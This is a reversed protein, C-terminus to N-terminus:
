FKVEKENRIKRKIFEGRGPTGKLSNGDYIIKGKSITKEVAGRLTMGEFPSYKADTTLTEKNIEWEKDPDLITLDADSGPLICGKEPYLGFIKAPNACLLSVLREITIRGKEVGESYIVPLLTEVGPLGPPVKDFGKGLKQKPSYGCHDSGIVDVTGDIIAKWLFKRDQDSRLPPACQYLEPKDSMYKEETLLLYHPCTEAYVNKLNNESISKMAEKTSVHVIYLPSNSYEAFKLMRNVAEVEAISPRTKPYHNLSTKNEKVFDKKIGEVINNNEAHVATLGGGNKKNEELLSLVTLDDSMLGEKKYTLYVKFSPTGKKIAKKVEKKKVAAGALAPHISFDIFAQNEVDKIRDQIETWISKEGSLSYYDIVTTVGGSAASKTGGEFDEASKISGFVNQFHVHSDVVGPLVFNDEVDIEEEGQLGKGLNSIKGNEIGIDAKVTGSPTVIKGGKIVTGSEIKIM